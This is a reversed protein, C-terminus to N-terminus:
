FFYIFKFLIFIYFFLLLYVLGKASGLGAGGFRSAITKKRKEGKKRKPKFVMWLVDTLLKFVTFSLVILVLWFVLKVVMDVLGILATKALTDNALLDEAQPYANLIYGYIFEELSKIQIGSLKINFSELNFTRVFEYTKLADSAIDLTVWGITFIIATAIFYFLSKRFGRIFGIFAFIGVFAIAFINIYMLLDDNSMPLFDNM